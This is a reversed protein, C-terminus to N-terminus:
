NFKPNFNDPWLWWPIEAGIYYPPIEKKCYKNFQGSTPDVYINPNNESRIEIISHEMTWYQEDFLNPHHPLEGHVLEIKIRYIDEPSQIIRRITDDFLVVDNTWFDNDYIEHFLKDYLARHMLLYFICCAKNCEGEYTLNIIHNQIHIQDLKERTEGCLKTALNFLYSFQEEATKEICKDYKSM